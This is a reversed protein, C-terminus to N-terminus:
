KEECLTETKDDVNSYEKMWQKIVLGWVVIWLLVSSILLLVEHMYGSRLKLM